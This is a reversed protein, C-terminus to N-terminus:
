AGDPGTTAPVRPSAEDPVGTPREELERLNVRKRVEITLPYLQDLFKLADVVAQAPREASHERVEDTKLVATLARTAWNLLEETFHTPIRYAEVADARAEAQTRSSRTM